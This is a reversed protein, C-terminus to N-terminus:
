EQRGLSIPPPVEGGLSLAMARDSEAIRETARLAAIANQDSAVANSMSLAMRRDESNQKAALVEEQWLLLSYEPDTLNGEKGKGKQKSAIDDVDNLFLKFALSDDLGDMEEITLPMELGSLRHADSGKLVGAM